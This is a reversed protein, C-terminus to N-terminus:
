SNKKYAVKILFTLVLAFLGFIILVVFINVNSKEVNEMSEISTLSSSEESSAIESEKRVELYIPKNQYNTKDINWIYQNGSTSDANHRSVPQGTRIVVRISTLEDYEKLCEAENSTSLIMSHLNEEFNFNKYCSKVARSTLYNNRSFNYKLTLVNGSLVSDYYEIGDIKEPVETAGVQGYFATQPWTHISSIYSNQLEGYATIRITEAKNENDLNIEYNVTCGSIIVVLFLLSFIKKIM